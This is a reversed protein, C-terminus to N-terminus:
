TTIVGLSKVHCSMVHVWVQSCATHKVVSQIQKTVNRLFKQPTLLNISIKLNYSAYCTIIIKIATGHIWM